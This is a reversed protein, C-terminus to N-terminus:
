GVLRLGLGYQQKIAQKLIELFLFILCLGFLIFGKPTNNKCRIHDLLSPTSTLSAELHGRPLSARRGGQARGWGRPGRTAGRVSKKRRYIYGYVRFVDPLVISRSNRWRLGRYGGFVLRSGTGAGQRLPIGDGSAMKMMGVSDMVLLSYNM